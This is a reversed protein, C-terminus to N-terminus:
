EYVKVIATDTYRTVSTKTEQIAAVYLNYDGVELNRTDIYVINPDNVDAKVVYANDQNDTLTWEYRTYGRNVKISGIESKKISYNPKLLDLEVDQPVLVEEKEEKAFLTNYDKVMGELSTFNFDFM